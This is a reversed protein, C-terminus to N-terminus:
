TLLAIYVKINLTILLPNWAYCLLLPTLTTPADYPSHSDPQDHNSEGQLKNPRNSRKSISLSFRDNDLRLNQSSKYITGKRLTLDGGLRGWTATLRGAEM